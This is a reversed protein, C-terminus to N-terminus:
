FLKRKLTKEAYLDFLFALRENDNLFSKKCYISDVVEDILKHIASISNPMTEDNYLYAITKDFFKNRCDLLQISLDNLKKIQENNLNIIPFNNYIIEISYKINTELKGGINKIWVNHMKSSLIAMLYLPSNYITKITNSFITEKEGYGVPVYQRAASSTEPLFVCNTEQKRIEVFRYAKNAFKNTTKNKSRLRFLKVNEIRKKILDFKEAEVKNKDDIWICWRKSGNIFEEGGMYPRIFNQAEPHKLLIENKQRINLLLNGEDRPMEGTTM